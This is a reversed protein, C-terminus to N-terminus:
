GVWCESSLSGSLFSVWPSEFRARAIVRGHVAELFGIEGFTGIALRARSMTDGRIPLRDHVRSAIHM